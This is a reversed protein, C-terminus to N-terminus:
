FTTEFQFRFGFENEESSPRLGTIGDAAGAALDNASTKELFYQVDATFRAARSKQFLYWNAGATITHFADDGSRDGDPFIGDYRGFLEVNDNVFVGGQLVLGFDNVSEGQDPDQLAYIFAGYANWGNGKFMADVAAEFLRGQDVSGSSATNGNQQYHAGVGVLWANPGGRWGSFDNFMNWDGGGKFEVRGTLGWDAEGTSQYSTNGSRYGDDFAIWGGFSDQRMEYGVGQTYGPNFVDTTVSYDAALQGFPSNSWERWLNNQFQGMFVSGGNDFRYKAYADLLNFSGGDASFQGEVKYTLDKNGVNGTAWLRTRTNEFGNTFGSDHFGAASPDDRFNLNYRFQFFGGVTVSSNAGEAALASTRGAADAMLEANYARTDVPEGAFATSTVAAGALLVLVRTTSM